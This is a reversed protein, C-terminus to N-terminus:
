HSHHSSWLPNTVGKKHDDPMAEQFKHIRSQLEEAKTELPHTEAM